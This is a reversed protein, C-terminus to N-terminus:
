SFDLGTTGHFGLGGWLKMLKYWAFARIYRPQGREVVKRELASVIQVLLQSAQKLPKENVSDLQLTM